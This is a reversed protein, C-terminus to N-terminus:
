AQAEARCAGLLKPNGIKDLATQAYRSCEDVTAFGPSGLVATPTACSGADGARACPATVFVWVRDSHMPAHVTASRAATLGASVALAGCLITLLPAARRLRTRLSAARASIAFAPM